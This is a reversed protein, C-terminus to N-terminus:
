RYFQWFLLQNEKKRKLVHFCVKKNKSLFFPILDNKKFSFLFVTKTKLNIGKLMMELKIKKAKKAGDQQEIHIYISPNRFGM